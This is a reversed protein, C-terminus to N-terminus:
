KTLSIKINDGVVFVCDYRDKVPAFSLICGDAARPIEGMSFIPDVKEGRSILFVGPKSYDVSYNTNKSFKRENLFQRELENMSLYKM